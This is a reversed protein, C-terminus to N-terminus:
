ERDRDHLDRSEGEQKRSYSRNQQGRTPRADDDEINEEAPEIRDEAPFVPGGKSQGGLNQIKVDVVAEEDLHFVPVSSGLIIFQPVNLNRRPIYDLCRAFM